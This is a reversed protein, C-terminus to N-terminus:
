AYLEHRGTMETINIRFLVVGEDNIARQMAEESHRFPIYLAREQNGADWLKQTILGMATSQDKANKLKEFTGYAIVSKWESDGILKEVQFCVHPHRRMAKTKQGDFSFCYLCHDKYAYTIPVVYPRKGDMICGLHGYWGKELIDRMEPDSLPTIM